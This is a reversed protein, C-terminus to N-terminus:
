FTAALSPQQPRRNGKTVSFSHSRRLTHAWSHSNLTVEDRLHIPQCWAREGDSTQEPICSPSFIEWEWEIIGGMLIQNSRSGILLNIWLIAVQEATCIVMHSNIEMIYSGGRLLLGKSSVDAWLELSVSVLRLTILGDAYKMLTSSLAASLQGRESLSM